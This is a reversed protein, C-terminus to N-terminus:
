QREAKATQNISRFWKPLKLHRKTALQPPPSTFPRALSRDLFYQDVVYGSCPDHTRYEVVHAWKNDNRTRVQRIKGTCTATKVRRRNGRAVEVRIQFKRLSSEPLRQDSVVCLAEQNIDLLQARHKGFGEIDILAHAVSPRERRTQRRNKQCLKILKRYLRSVTKKLVVLGAYTVLIVDSLARSGRTAHRNDLYARLRKPTRHPTFLQSVGVLGPKVDFRRDYNPIGKCLSDYIEPRVPRPGVLRMDGKLVNFLQPLEDLRTDRLFRGFPALLPDEDGLLRKGIIGNAGSVLTRFKIMRFKKKNLGLRDGVYLVHHGRRLFLVISVTAMLPLSLVILALAAIRHGLGFGVKENTPPRIEEQPVGSLQRDLNGDNM